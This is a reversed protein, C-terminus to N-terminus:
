WDMGTEEKLGGPLDFTEQPFDRTEIQTLRVTSVTKGNEYSVVKVPLGYYDESDTDEPTKRSGVRFLITSEPVVEGLFDGMARMVEFANEDVKLENWGVTWVDVTKREGVSGTYQDCKWSGVNVGSAVKKFTPTEPRHPMKEKMMKEVMERQEPPLDKLQEEMMEFARDMEAKMRKLDERNIELYSGRDGQILWFLDRDRRFIFTVSGEDSQMDLRMADDGVLATQEMTEGTGDAPKVENVLYVGAGAITSVVMTLGVMSFFVKWRDMSCELKM